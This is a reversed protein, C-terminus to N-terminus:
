CRPTNSPPSSGVSRTPPHVLGPSKWPILPPLTWKYIDPTLVLGGGRNTPLEGGLDHQIALMLKSLLSASLIMEYFTRQIFWWTCGVLGNLIKGLHGQVVAAHHVDGAGAARCGRHRRRLARAAHCQRAGLAGRPQCAGSRLPQFLHCCRAAFWPIKM